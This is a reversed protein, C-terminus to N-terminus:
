LVFASIANKGGKQEQSIDARKREDVVVLCGCTSGIYFFEVLPPFFAIEYM